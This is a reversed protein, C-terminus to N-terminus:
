LEDRFKYHIINYLIAVRNYLYNYNYVHIITSMILSTPISILVNTNTYM